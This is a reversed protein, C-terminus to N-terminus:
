VDDKGTRTYNLTEALHQLKLFKLNQQRIIFKCLNNMSNDNLCIANLELHSMQFDGDRLGQTIAEADLLKLRATIALYSLHQQSMM